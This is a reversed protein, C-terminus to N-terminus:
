VVFVSLIYIITKESTTIRRYLRVTVITLHCQKECQVASSVQLKECDSRVSKQQLDLGTLVEIRRSLKNILPHEDDSM